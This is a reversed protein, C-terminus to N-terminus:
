RYNKNRLFLEMCIIGFILLSVTPILTAEPSSQYDELSSGDNQTLIWITSPNHTIGFASTTLNVAYHLGTPMSIGNSYIASLGFVIGWVGPGLFSNAITWGNVVHYLAFLVSTVIISTRIGGKEKLTSLPYARFGIEEMFALPILPLSLLFFDLMNGTRNVEVKFGSFFIVSVSMLGMLVVGIVMGIFFKYITTREFRLGIDTFKKKEFRLFLYTTLFAVGTGITGHALRETKEPLFSKLFSFVVLLGTFIICFLISKFIYNTRFRTQLTGKM